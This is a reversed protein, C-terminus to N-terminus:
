DSDHKRKFIIGANKNTDSRISIEKRVGNETFYIAATNPPIDGTNNAYIVLLNKENTVVIPLVLSEHSLRHQKVLLQKNYFVTVTDNDVQNNDIINLYITDSQVEVIDQIEVLRGQFYRIKDGDSESENAYGRIKRLNFKGSSCVSSDQVFVGDVYAGIPSGWEGKMVWSDKLTDITALYNKICWPHKDNNGSSKMLTVDTFNLNQGDFSGELYYEAFDGTRSIIKSTGFLTSDSEYYLKFIVEYMLTKDKQSLLGKWMGEFPLDEAKLSLVGLLFFVGLLSKQFSKVIVGFM